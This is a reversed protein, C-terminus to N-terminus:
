QADGIRMFTLRSIHKSTTNDGAVSPDSGSSNAAVFIAVRFTSINTVNIFRERTSTVYSLGSQLYSLQDYMDYNDFSSGSNTSLRIDNQVWRLDASGNIQLDSVVRWTGTVPFAFKEQSTVTMAAGIRNFNKVGDLSSWHNLFEGSSDFVESTDMHYIDLHSIGNFFGSFMKAETVANAGLKATTVAGDNIRATTVSDDPPVTTQLAKGQYIVYFDDTSAVNGTMTLATGSVTYAVGAEQRVNNVFVEIEQANAVAHTMTYPGTTGDGTITQKDMSSYSNSTQNGIYGM